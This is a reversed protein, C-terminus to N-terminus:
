YAANELDAEMQARSYPPEDYMADLEEFDGAINSGRSDLGLAGANKLGRGCRAPGKAPIKAPFFTPVGL